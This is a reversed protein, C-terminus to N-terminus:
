KKKLMLTIVELAIANLISKVKNNKYILNVVFSKCSHCIDVRANYFGQSFINAFKLIINSILFNGIESIEKDKIVLLTATSIKEDKKPMAVNTKIM